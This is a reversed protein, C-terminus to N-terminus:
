KKTRGKKEGNNGKTITVFIDKVIPENRSNFDLEFDFKSYDESLGFDTMFNSFLIEKNESVVERTLETKPMVPQPQVPQVVGFVNDVVPEAVKNNGNRLRRLVKIIISLLVILVLAIAFGIGGFILQEKM